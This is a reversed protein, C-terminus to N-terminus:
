SKIKKTTQAYIITGIMAHEQLTLDFSPFFSFLVSKQIPFNWASIPTLHIYIFIVLDNTQYTDILISFAVSFNRPHGDTDKGEM